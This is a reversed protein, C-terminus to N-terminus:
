QPRTRDFHNRLMIASLNMAFLFVMLVIIAAGALQQFEIQPRATWNFIQIPLVTFPDMVNEPLFAVFTLAGIMILPATEGLARSLSLIVGTMIGPAALPLVHAYTVQWRTAGLAYASERIGGPISRIAEQTSIVIIPLILLGMTLAGSLLSREVLEDLDGKYGNIRAGWAINQYISKPFPNPKQFVMGVRRRLEVPDANDFISEGDLRIHGEHRTNPILENMRNMSRLLTSKGCGSPGIFATVQHAPIEMSIGRLAHTEGYWFNLDEIQMKSAAPDQPASGDAAAAIAQTAQNRQTIDEMITVHRPRATVANQPTM